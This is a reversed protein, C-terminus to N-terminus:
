HRTGYVAQHATARIGSRHLGLDALARDDLRRLEALTARYARYDAVAQVLHHVGASIELALGSPMTTRTENAFAM